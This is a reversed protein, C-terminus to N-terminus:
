QTPAQRRRAAIPPGLVKIGYSEGLANMAAIDNPNSIAHAACAAFFNEVGAPRILIVYRGDQDATNQFVHPVNAPIHVFDGPGATHAAGDIEFIFSGELIYFSEEFPHVHLPPGNHAAVTNVMVTASGADDSAVLKLRLTNGIMSYPAGNLCQDGHLIFPQAAPM